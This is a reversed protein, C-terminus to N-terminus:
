LLRRRKRLVKRRTCDGLEVIAHAGQTRMRVSSIESPHCPCIGTETPQDCQKIAINAMVYRYRFFQAKFTRRGRSDLARGLPGVARNGSIRMDMRQRSAVESMKLQKDTAGILAASVTV